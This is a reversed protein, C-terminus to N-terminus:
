RECVLARPRVSEGLRTVHLLIETQQLLPQPELTEKFALIAETPQEVVIRHPIVSSAM